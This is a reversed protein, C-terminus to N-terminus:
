HAPVYYLKAGLPAESQTIFAPYSVNDKPYLVLRWYPCYREPNPTYNLSDMEIYKPVIIYSGGPIESCNQINDYGYFRSVNNYYMFVEIPFGAVFYIPTNSPLGSLYTAITVLDYKGYAFMNYWILGPTIATSILFVIGLFSIIAGPARRMISKGKEVARLASISITLVLPAAIVLLYRDLRNTFIYQFPNLKVVAPGFEFLLFIATFWFLLFYTSKERKLVLYLASVLFIYYYFGVSNYNVAYLQMLINVPNINLTRIDGWLTSVLNYPFMIDPYFGLNQNLGQVIVPTDITSFTTTLTIIPNGSSAYNFLVLILLVIAIGHLFYAATKNAPIKKRILEIGLYVFAALVIFFGLPGAIPAAALSAGAMFYWKKSNRKEALLIALMFFSAILMFVTDDTVTTAFKNILPFSTLLAAALLGANESYLEKGLYFIIPITLIYSLISWASSSILSIGFVEYFLAIPMFVLLRVSMDYQSEAFIGHSAQYALETYAFDDSYNSPGIFFILSYSLAYWIILFLFIYSRNKNLFSITTGVLLKKGM